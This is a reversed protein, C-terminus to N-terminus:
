EAHSKPVAEPYAPLLPPYTLWSPVTGYFHAWESQEATLITPTISIIAFFSNLLAPNAPCREPSFSFKPIATIGSSEHTMNLYMHSKAPPAPAPDVPFSTLFDILSEKVM